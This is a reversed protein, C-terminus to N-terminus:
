ATPRCSAPLHPRAPPRRSQPHGAREAYGRSTSRESLSMRASISLPRTRM